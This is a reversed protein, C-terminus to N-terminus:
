DILSYLKELLLDKRIKVYELVLKLENAETEFKKSEPINSLISRVLYGDSVSKLDKIVKEVIKSQKYEPISYLDELIEYLSYKSGDARRISSKANKEFNRQFLDRVVHARTISMNWLLSIGNDFAPALRLFSANDAKELIGWNYYHRDTGGILADFCMLRFFEDWVGGDVGNKNNVYNRLAEIIINLTYLKRKERVTASGFAKYVSSILDQGHILNERFQNRRIDRQRRVDLQILVGKNHKLKLNTYQPINCLWSRQVPFHYLRGITSACVESRLEGINNEYTKAIFYVKGMKTQKLVVKDRTGYGVQIPREQWNRINIVKNIRM